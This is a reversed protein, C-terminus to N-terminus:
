GKRKGENSVKGKSIVKEVYSLAFLDSLDSKIIIKNM